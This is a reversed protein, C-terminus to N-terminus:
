VWTWVWSSFHFSIQKKEFGRPFSLATEFFGSLEKEEILEEIMRKLVEVDHGGILAFDVVHDIHLLTSLNM